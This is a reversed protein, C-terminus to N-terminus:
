YQSMIILIYQSKYQTIPCVLCPSIHTTCMTYYMNHVVLTRISIHSMIILIYPNLNVIYSVSIRIMIHRQSVTEDLDTWVYKKQNNSLTTKKSLIVYNTECM